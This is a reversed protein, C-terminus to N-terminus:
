PKRDHRCSFADERADFGAEFLMSDMRGLEADIHRFVPVKNAVQSLASVGSCISEVLYLGVDGSEILLRQLRPLRGLSPWGPDSETSNRAIGRWSFPM